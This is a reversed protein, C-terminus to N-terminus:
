SQGARVGVDPPRRGAVLDHPSVTLQGPHGEDADERVSVGPHERDSAVYGDLSM